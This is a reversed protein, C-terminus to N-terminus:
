RVQCASLSRRGTVDYNEVDSFSCPSMMEFMDTWFVNLNELKNGDANSGRVCLVRGTQAYVGHRISAFVFCLCISSGGAVSVYRLKVELSSLSKFCGCEKEQWCHDHCM